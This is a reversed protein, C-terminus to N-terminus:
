ILIYGKLLNIVEEKECHMLVDIISLNEVFEQVGQNYKLNKSQMFKLEINETEFAKAEYLSQGGIANRYQDINTKKCLAIIRDQGKKEHPKDIESSFIFERHINLYKFVNILSKSNKHAVNLNEDHVVEEILPIVRNFQPSKKYANEILTLFYSHNNTYSHDNIKRNQSVKEVPVSFDFKKKNLIISNRNIYGKKIYNVDDLFIFKETAYALQYYGIYPFFYPQMISGRM